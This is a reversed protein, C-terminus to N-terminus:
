LVKYIGCDMYFVHLDLRMGQDAADVRLNQNM